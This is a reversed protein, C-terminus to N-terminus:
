HASVLMESELNTESWVPQEIQVADEEPEWLAGFDMNMRRKIADPIEVGPLVEALDMTIIGNPLVVLLWKDFAINIDIAEIKIFRM